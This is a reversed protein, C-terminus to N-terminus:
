MLYRHAEFGNMDFWSPFLSLDVFGLFVTMFGSYFGNDMKWVKGNVNKPNREEEQESYAQTLRM